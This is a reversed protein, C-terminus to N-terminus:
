RVTSFRRSPKGGSVMGDFTVFRQAVTAVGTPGMLGDYRSGYETSLRRPVHDFCPLM